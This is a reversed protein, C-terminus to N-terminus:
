SINYSFLFFFYFIAFKSPDIETGILELLVSRRIIKDSYADLQNAITEKLDEKRKRRVTLVARAMFKLTKETEVILANTMKDITATAMPSRLEMRRLACRRRHRSSLSMSSFCPKSGEDTTLSFPTSSIKMSVAM